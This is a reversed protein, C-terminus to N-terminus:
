EWATLVALNTHDDLEYEQCILEQTPYENQISTSERAFTILFARHLELPDLNLNRGEYTWSVNHWYSCNMSCCEGRMQDWPDLNLNRGEYTWSVNHWYSCNM